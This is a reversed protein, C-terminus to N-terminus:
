GTAGLVRMAERVVPRSVGFEEAIAAESPLYEGPVVEGAVIVNTFHAVLHTHLRRRLSQPM